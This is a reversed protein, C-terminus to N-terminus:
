GTTFFRSNYAIPGYQFLLRCTQNELCHPTQRGYMDAIWRIQEETAADKGLQASLAFEGSLGQQLRAQQWGQLRQEATLDHKIQHITQAAKQSPSSM